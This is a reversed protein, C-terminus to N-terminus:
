AGIAIVNSAAPQLAACHRAWMDMLQRRKEFGAGRLYAQEVDSVVVHALALECIERPVNTREAAWQRFSSRFGHVTVGKRIREMARRMAQEGTAPGDRGPFLCPGIRPLRELVAMAGESLPVRHEKRGKMREPPVTWVKTKLDIEDWRASRAEGTRAATLIAFELARAGIADDKRLAAVFAGIEGYPLAAHHKKGNGNAAALLHELNGKWEAPNPGTRFKRVAAWDLVAKIRGLVRQATVRKAAWIPDLVRMVAATDIAHVHWGLIPGAHQEVQLAWQAAYKANSWESQHARAYEALCERFTKRPLREQQQTRRSEIPDTGLALQKRLEVALERVDALGLRTTSGLGMDRVRGSRQYRFVWSTSRKGNHYSVRLFLNGGDAHLGPKTRKLSSASLRHLPRAMDVDM